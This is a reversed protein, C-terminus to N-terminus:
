RGLRKSIENEVQGLTHSFHRKNTFGVAELRLLPSLDGDAVDTAVFRFENLTRIEILFDLSDIRGCANLRLDRLAPAAALGQYQSLKPCRDCYLVELAELEEAPALSRLGRLYALELRRLQPWRLLGNLSAVSGQTLGLERLAGLEPLGSLDRSAPRLKWLQLTELAACRSSLYLDKHWDGRFEELQPFADLDLPQQNDSVSLYRLQILVHIASLDIQSTSPVIVLGGVDPHERVFDIHPLRYGHMPNIGIGDLQQEYYYEM